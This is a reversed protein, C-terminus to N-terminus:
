PIYPNSEREIGITTAPGHGPYVTTEDPLTLLKQLSAELVLENGGPLDSRGISGSFLVDGVFVIGPALLCIGGPSHGPTHLVRLKYEGQWVDIEDGDQLLRTPSATEQPFGFLAAGSLNPDSLMPADDTHIWLPAGSQAMEAAASIHDCHGHTMVVAACTLDRQQLASFINRASGAPDIVLAAPNAPLSVLYCNTEFPGSILRHINLSLNDPSSSM